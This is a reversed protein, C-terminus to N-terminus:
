LPLRVGGLLTGVPYQTEISWSEEMKMLERPCKEIVVQMSCDVKERDVPADVKGQARRGSVRGLHRFTTM